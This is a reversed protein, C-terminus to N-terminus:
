ESKLNFEIGNPAFFLQSYPTIDRSINLESVYLINGGSKADALFVHTCLGWASLAENFEIRNQNLISGDTSTSWNTKNNAIAVREYAGGVPETAGQGDSNIPTKSLGLYYTESPNLQTKGFVYNQIQSAQYKTIM